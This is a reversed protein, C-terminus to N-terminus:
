PSELRAYGFGGVGFQNGCYFMVLEGAVERVHPYAVMESDWGTESVDLGAESDEGRHWTFLDESWAYGIRYGKGLGERFGVGHRYSFFMHYRGDRRIISASTQCEDSVATEVIPTGTRKWVVGDESTAHMLLYQSEKKPNADIWKIGSLYFMHWQNDSEKYVIPCAQLYPEDIIPGVVPGLGVKKFKAGDKSVALGIAWNYPTSVCRQWGCYYLYYDGNTQIVSGAMSGFEDFEGPGGLEVIPESAVSLVNKLNRKDLDIFGSYSRFMGGADPRERTSFYVRLYDGFDVSFPVQAHSHMWDLSADPRFILGEKKWKFM